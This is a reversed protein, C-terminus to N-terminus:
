GTGEKKPKAEKRIRNLSSLMFNKQINMGLFFMGCSGLLLSVGILKQLYSFYMTIGSLLFMFWTFGFSWKSKAM